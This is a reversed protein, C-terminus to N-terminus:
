DGGEFDPMWVDGPLANDPSAAHGVWLVSIDSRDTPRTTVPTMVAMMLSPQIPTTQNQWKAANDDYALVQSSQPNSLSVDTMSSLSGADPNFSM